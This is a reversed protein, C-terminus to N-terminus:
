DNERKEHEGDYDGTVDDGGVEESDRFFLPQEHAEPDYDSRPIQRGESGTDLGDVSPAALIGGHKIPDM